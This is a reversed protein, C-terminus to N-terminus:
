CLIGCPQEPANQVKMYAWYQVPMGPVLHYMVPCIYLLVVQAANNDSHLRTM